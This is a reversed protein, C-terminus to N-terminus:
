SKEVNLHSIHKSNFNVINIPPTIINKKSKNDKLLLDFQSIQNDVDSIYDM